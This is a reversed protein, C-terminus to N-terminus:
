WLKLRPLRRFTPVFLWLKAARERIQDVVEQAAKESSCYNVVVTAGNRALKLAIARGIGRSGGTVLAIRESREM